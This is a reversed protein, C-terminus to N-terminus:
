IHSTTDIVRRIPNKSQRKHKFYLGSPECPLDTTQELRYLSLGIEVEPNKGSFLLCVAIHSCTNRHPKHPFLFSISLPEFICLIIMLHKSM